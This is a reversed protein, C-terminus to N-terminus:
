LRSELKRKKSELERIEGGLEIIRQSLKTQQQYHFRKMERKSILQSDIEALRADRTQAVGAIQLQGSSSSKVTSM